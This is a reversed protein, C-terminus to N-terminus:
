DGGDGSTGECTFGAFLATGVFALGASLAALVLAFGAALVAALFLLLRSQGSVVWAAAKM